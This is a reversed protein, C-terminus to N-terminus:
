SHKKSEYICLETLICCPHACDNSTIWFVLILQFRQDEVVESPEMNSMISDPFLLFAHGVRLSKIFEIGQQLVGVHFVMDTRRESENGVNVEINCMCSECDLVQKQNRTISTEGKKEKGKREQMAMRKKM